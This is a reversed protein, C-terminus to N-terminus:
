GGVTGRSGEEGVAQRSMQPMPSAAESEKRFSMRWRLLLSQGDKADRIQRFPSPGRTERTASSKM